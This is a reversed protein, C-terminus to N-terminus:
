LQRPQCVAILGESRTTETKVIRADAEMFSYECRFYHDLLAMVGASDWHQKHYPNHRPDERIPVSLLLLSCTRRANDLFFEPNALHELTEFSVIVDYTTTWSQKELDLIFQQGLPEKDYGDVSAAVESLIKMGFGSGSAIDAVRKGACYQKAFEYRALHQRTTKEDSQGLVVREAAPTRFFSLFLRGWQVRRLPVSSRHILLVLSLALILLLAIWEPSRRGFSILNRVKRM